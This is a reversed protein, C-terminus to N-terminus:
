RETAPINDSESRASSGLLAKITVFVIASGVASWILTLVVGKFQAILQTLLDYDAIRGSTYDFVGAGGFSPSAVVSTGLTGIIGGLCFIGLLTANEHALARTSAVALAFCAVSAVVGLIMAGIPAAFGAAPTVAVIGSIAGWAFDLSSARGNALWAALMWTLAGAAAAAPLNVISIVALLHAELNSGAILGVWGLGFLLAGMLATGAEPPASYRSAGAHRNMVRAGILGSVGATIHVVAGGAFDLAGWQFALGADSVVAAFAAEAQAKANGTAAAMAAGADAVADPGAWYWFMHAVPFHVLLAWLVTFLLLAPLSMRDSLAGGVSATAVCAVTMMFAIFAYEPIHVGKTFTPAQSSGDVGALFTKTFGGVLINGGGGNTWTLSYGSVLWVFAVLAFISVVHVLASRRSQTPSAYLLAIGPIMTALVLLTAGAMWVANPIPLPGSPYTLFQSVPGQMLAGAALLATLGAMIATGQGASRPRPSAPKIEHRSVEAPRSALRALKVRASDANAGTAFEDLFAQLADADAADLTSWIMAELKASAYRETTGGPFRALHDRLEAVNRRDEVFRWNALEEAKRIEEPTLGALAQARARQEAEATRAAAAAEAQLRDAEAASREADTRAAREAEAAALQEKLATVLGQCDAKFREPRLGVANRRALARIGEPLAEARPIAAGGVLVPIVRKGKELAARIEITVFDDPDDARAALLETWRPGIIALLVDAGAVQANLVEVFDDGPRIHGEVDMFINRATFEDELRQYLAQTFGADDGRRYNIFIKGVMARM